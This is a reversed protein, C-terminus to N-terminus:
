QVHSQRTRPCVGVADGASPKVSGECVMVGLPALPASIHTNFLHGTAADYYWHVSGGACSMASLGFGNVGPPTPAGCEGFFVFVTDTTPSYLGAPSGCGYLTRPTEWSGGGDLSRTVGMWGDHSTPSRDCEGLAIITNNSTALLALGWMSTVNKM